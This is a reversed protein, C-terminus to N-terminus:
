KRGPASAAPAPAMVLNWEEGARQVIPTLDDKLLYGEKALAAAAAEFKALYDARSAYRDAVSPRPDGSAERAVRTAPFPIWAGLLPVLEDPAGIRPQRFNWGAHTALPVAVEPLRVGALENGDADVKPVLLPLPAGIGGGNALRPNDVRFGAILERPSTVGPIAPFGVRTPPVLTGDRLTPYASPPPALDNQVWRHMAVTLARLIWAYNAPDAPQQGNADPNAPPFRGPGHQAGTLFYSRVNPPLAIDQGGDATTHILAAARGGGWYEVPTNTYFIKPPHRAARPNELQGDRAGSVPDVQAADSFPFATASFQGQSRPLAWRRNLDIRSAGAIHAIVGDFAPGDHEDTNFGDYLFQRLFRGSQSSGFAITHRVPALSSDGHKLWAATDRMAALGLGAVPPNASEYFLEYYKGPDFGGKLTVTTGDLQWRGRPLETGMADAARARATLRAEEGRPELPPYAALDTVTVRETRTNLIFPAHAWGVIPSRDDTAAPVDVRMAGGKPVDFEWGVWVITFGQRLLFRDGLDAESVPNANAGRNLMSFVVKGGRNVVDVIASGNGTAADKPRLICVDASFEVRGGANVPARDLDAIERNQALKPDVAFYLTGDIREYGSAGLDARKNVAVRTVEAVVVSCIAFFVLTVALIMKM